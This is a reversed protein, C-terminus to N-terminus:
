NATTAGGPADALLREALRTKPHNTGLTPRLQEAASALKGRAEDWRGQGQLARGEVLYCRGVYSSPAESGATALFVGSAKEADAAARDFRRVELEFEARRLLFVSAAEEDRGREANAVAYDLSAQAAATNGRAYAIMGREFAVSSLLIPDAGKRHARPEVENVAQEARALDGLTRYARARMLLSQTVVIDDGSARARAYALEADHSAEVTRDLDLLTRALNTFRMPSVNRDSGDASGISIAKRFLEEAKLTQGMLHLTLGWNNLLASATQTDGRGLATLQGYAREFMAVAKPFQNAQDYSAALHMLVNTEMLTSRYRVQPLLAQAAESREIARAADSAERAVLSGDLLCSIRDFVSQPEEPIEALGERILGEAREVDGARGVPQALACAARARTTGDGLTRSMEYARGLLRKAEEPRDVAAYQEGVAILMEVRTADSDLQEGEVIKAARSLLEGATFPRGSFAADSLLFANLDNIAASRALERLTFDRQATAARAQEDARGREAEAIEAQQTARLAETITGALGAVLALVALTSLSVALRNRRIFKTARYALSDRRAGVPQHMLHRRIDDAFATVSGYREAPSNKLAALVITDLDGTLAKKLKVLPLRRAAALGVNKCAASPRVIDAQLIAEELAGRSDRQLRYPREGTVLEYLVVGLSYVDTATTLPAGSIQEPSAYDPTLLRGAVQTLESDSAQGEDLLKAIGFDLLRVQGDDTVLINSPKLDRHVVLHAHAYQVADLVQLFLSLRQPLELRHEDCYAVLPRGDVYELALFPQGDATVGADYLRAIHTHSLAALIDRERAFREALASAHVDVHPLKLAVPRKLVGDTREALWVSGMGGQGLERLLRYPGVIAGGSLNGVSADAVGQRGIKPLTKLFRNTEATARQAFLAHLTPKLNETDHPLAELWAQREDAPLTLIEDLLRSLVLWEEDTFKM